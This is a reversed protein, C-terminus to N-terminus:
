GDRSQTGGPPPTQRWDLSPWPCLAALRRRERRNGSVTWYKIKPLRRRRETFCPRERRFADRTHKGPVIYDFRPTKREMDTWGAYHFNLARYVYGLYGYSTDAYSVIIRPPMVRLVRSVFWSETNRPMEDAVWLRNLELVQDPASPCVSLQLHRSAPVGFTVAGVLRGNVIRLGYALSITPRRHLYHYAVVLETAAVASLQVVEALTDGSALFGVSTGPAQTVLSDGFTLQVGEMISLPRRRGGFIEREGPDPRSPTLQTSLRSGLLFGTARERRSRRFIIGGCQNAPAPPDRHVGFDGPRRPDVHPGM